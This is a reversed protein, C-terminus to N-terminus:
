VVEMVNIFSHGTNKCIEMVSNEQERFEIHFTKVTTSSNGYKEHFAFQWEKKTTKHNYTGDIGRGFTGKVQEGVTSESGGSPQVQLRLQFTGEHDGSTDEKASGYMHIFGTVHITSSDSKPTYNITLGTDVWTANSGTVSTTTLASGWGVVPGPLGWRNDGHLVTSASATGTASLEAVGIADDKMQTSGISNEEIHEQGVAGDAINDGEVCDPGLHAHDISGDKYHESDVADDEIKDGTVADGALETTDVAGPEITASGIAGAALMAAEVVGPRIVWDTASVVKIDNKDGTTLAIGETSTTVAGLEQLKYLFQKHNDNLDGAKVSSGAQYTHRASDVNTDRFIRIAANNAPIKGSKFTLTTGSVTYDTNVTKTEGAVSVFVDGTDLFDFATINYAATSGDGTYDQHTVAM